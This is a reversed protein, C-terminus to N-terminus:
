RIGKMDVVFLNEYIIGKRGHGIGCVQGSLLKVAFYGYEYSYFRKCPIFSRAFTDRMRRDLLRVVAEDM